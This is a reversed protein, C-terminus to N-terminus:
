GARRMTLGPLIIKSIPILLGSTRRMFRQSRHWPPPAKTGTSAAKYSSVHAAMRIMNTVGTSCETTLTSSVIRYSMCCQWDATTPLEVLKTFSNNATFTTDASCEAGTMGVLIQDNTTTTINGSTAPSSTDDGTANTQDLPTSTDAGTVEMVLVSPFGSTKSVTFTHSSGGTGGAKYFVGIWADFASSARVISGVQSYVNSKSDTVTPAGSGGQWISGVVFLSGSAATTIGTTTNSNTGAGGKATSAGVALAM